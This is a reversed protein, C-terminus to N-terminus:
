TIDCMSNSNCTWCEDTHAACYSFHSWVSSPLLLLAMGHSCEASIVRRWQIREERAQDCVCCVCVMGGM